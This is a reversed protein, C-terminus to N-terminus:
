GLVVVDVRVIYHEEGLDDVDPPKGYHGGRVKQVEGDQDDFELEDDDGLWALVDNGEGRVQSLVSSARYGGKGGLEQWWMPDGESEGMGVQFAIRRRGRAASRIADLLARKAPMRAARAAEKVAVSGRGRVKYPFPPVDVSVLRGRQGILRHTAGEVQRAPRVTLGGGKARVPVSERGTVVPRTHGKTALEHVAGAFARGSKKGAGIKRAYEPTTGISQGVEAWTMGRAQKMALLEAGVGGPTTM